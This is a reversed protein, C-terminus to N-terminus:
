SRRARLLLGVGVVGLAGLAGLLGAALGGAAAYAARMGPQPAVLYGLAAGGAADLPASGTSWTLADSWSLGGTTSDDGTVPVDPFPETSPPDEPTPQTQPGQQGPFPPLPGGPPKFVPVKTNLPAFGGGINQFGQANVPM